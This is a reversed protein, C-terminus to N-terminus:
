SNEMFKRIESTVYDFYKDKDRLLRWVKELNKWRVTEHGNKKVIVLSKTYLNFDKIFHKNEPKDVKIPKWEMKDKQM